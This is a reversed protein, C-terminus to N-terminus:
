PLLGSSLLNQVSHFCANGSKLRRKIEEKISNRYTLNTVLYRFEKVREFSNNDTKMSHSRGAAQGLSM